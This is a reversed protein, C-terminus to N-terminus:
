RQKLAIMEVANLEIEKWTFHTLLETAEFKDMKENYNYHNTRYVTDNTNTM